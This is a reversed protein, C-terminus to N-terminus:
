LDLVIRNIGYTIDRVSLMPEIIFTMDQTFKAAQTVPTVSGKLCGTACTAFVRYDVSKLSAVIGWACLRTIYAATLDDLPVQGIPAKWANEWIFQLTSPLDALFLDGGHRKLRNPLSVCEPQSLTPGQPRHKNLMPYLIRCHEDSTPDLQAIVIVGKHFGVESPPAIDSDGNSVQAKSYGSIFDLITVSGGSLTDRLRTSQFQLHSICSSPELLPDLQKDVEWALDLADRSKLSPIQKMLENLIVQAQFRRNSYETPKDRPYGAAADVRPAESSTNPQATSRDNNQQGSRAPIYTTDARPRCQKHM